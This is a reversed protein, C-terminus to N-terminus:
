RGAGGTPGTPDTPAVAGAGGTPGTPGTLAVAGAGALAHAALAGALPSGHWVIEPAALGALEYARRVGAEAAARDAPVATLGIALWGDARASLAVDPTGDSDVFSERQSRDVFSETGTDGDVFSM